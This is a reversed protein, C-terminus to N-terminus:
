LRAGKMTGSDNAMPVVGVLAAAQRNSIAGLESMWCILAAATVPGIGPVSQLIRCNRAHDADEAILAKIGRDYAEITRDQVVIAAPLETTSVPDAVESLTTKLATRQDVVKERPVLMDGLRDFFADRPQTLSLDAFAIGFTALMRADVRDTKALQGTAKAFNRSQRPNIVCVAFGKAHLSQVLNLHMRGTAEMVVREVEAAKFWKAIAWFGIEDNPLTRDKGDLHVDLKSKSVDIGAVPKMM